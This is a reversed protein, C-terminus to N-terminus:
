LRGEVISLAYDLVDGATANANLRHVPTRDCFVVHAVAEAYSGPLLHALAPQEWRGDPAGARGSATAPDVDLVLYLDPRRIGTNFAAYRTLDIGDARHYALGSLYYRDSLVVAYAALDASLDAQQQHRDAASLLAMAEAPMPPTAASWLRFQTGIPGASPERRSAVALGRATLAAALAATLTTKGAHDVGEVAVFLGLPSDVDGAM